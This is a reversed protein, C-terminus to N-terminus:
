AAVYEFILLDDQSRPHAIAQGNPHTADYAIVEAIYVGTLDVSGINFTIESGSWSILSPSDSSDITSQLVNQRNYLKCVVRTVSTFDMAVNDENFSVVNTNSLNKYVIETTSM